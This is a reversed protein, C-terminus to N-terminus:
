YHNHLATFQELSPDLRMDLWASLVLNVEPRHWEKQRRPVKLM